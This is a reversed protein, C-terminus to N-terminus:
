KFCKVINQKNAKYCPIFSSIMTVVISIAIIILAHIFTFNAINSANYSAYYRDILDNIPFTLIYTFVAGIIGSCLGLFLSELEFINLIDSKKCGFSRLLGIEAKRQLVNNLTYIGTMACSVVLSIIAFIILISSVLNIMTGVDELIANKNSSSYIIMESEDLCHYKSSSDMNNYDDLKDLLTSRSDLSTPFLIVNEINSYANLYASLSLILSYGKIIQSNEGSNLYTYIKTFIEILSNYDDLELNKIEDDILDVGLNSANSQFYQIRTFIYGYKDYTYCVFYNNLIENLDDLPISTYDNSQYKNFLELIESYFLQLNEKADELTSHRLIINNKLYENIEASKNIEVYKEQLSSIFCLAPSLLTYTSTSKPRIIGSIKLTQGKTEDKYLTENLNSTYVKQTISYPDDAISNPNEKESQYSYAEDNSFIKYEKNIINDFSISVEKNNDIAEKIDAQTDNENYFGLYKLIDFSISNYKDVVLVLENENEPLNGALLDYSDLDGYIVHFINTPLSYSSAYYNYTTSYTTTVKSYYEGNDNDISAPFKTMLNYSYNNGYNITYSSLTGEDILSDLFNFYKDSFKNMRYNYTNSSSVSPYVKSESTYEENNNYTNKIDSSEYSYSSLVVPLSTAASKSLNASYIGFGTNLALFFGIGIMGFSNTIGTLLTKWKKAFLNRFALKISLLFPMHKKKKSINFENNIYTLEKKSQINVLKGDNLNIIMDAYKDALEKNHTVIVCLKDNSIEKLIDMVVVSNSSDLSGTPEDGLIIKPDTLLLRCIAVRQQQGKSLQNINKNEYGKLGIKDLLVLAKKYYKKYSNNQIDLGLTINEIVNLHDILHYDQFIYNAVSNRYNNLENETFDHLKHNDIFVDGNYITDLGGLINLLTTKGCGSPGLICVLGKKPLKFSVNNLAAHGEKENYIKEVNVLEIM